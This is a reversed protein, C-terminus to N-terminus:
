WAIKIILLMKNKTTILFIIISWKHINILITQYCQTNWTFFVKIWIVNTKNNWLINCNVIVYHWLKFLFWKANIIHMKLWLYFPLLILWCNPPKHTHTPKSKFSQVLFSSFNLKFVLLLPLSHKQTHRIFAFVYNFKVFLFFSFLVPWFYYLSIRNVWHLSAAARCCM